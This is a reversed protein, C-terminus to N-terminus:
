LMVFSLSQSFEGLLLIYLKLYPPLTHRLQQGLKM